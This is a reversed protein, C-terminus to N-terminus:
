SLYMCIVTEMARRDVDLLVEKLKGYREKGQRIDCRDIAPKLERLYKTTQDLQGLIYDLRETLDGLHHLMGTGGFDERISTAMENLGAEAPPDWESWVLLFYSKLIEIDGLGRVHRVIHKGSGLYRGNCM